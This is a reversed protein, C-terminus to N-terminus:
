APGPLGDTDPAVPEKYKDKWNKPPKKGKAEFNKLQEEEWKKRREVLIRELLVSAPEDCPNEARWQETLRGEVAAKLVSARYRKLNAQARELAAVGADLDSFLEEIKAVIRNQELPPAMPLSTGRIHALNVRPRTTGKTKARLQSAVVESNLGFVVYAKSLWRENLRLRVVDAVIVGSPLGPPVVCAKGLPAGLKTIVIDGGLFGHRKLNWAKEDSIYRINQYKFANRDINQLRIIPTGIDKYESAKLNSGFPGDVIASKPDAVLESLEAWAWGEPLTGGSM